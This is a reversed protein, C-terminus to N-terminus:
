AIGGDLVVVRVPKGLLEGGLIAHTRKTTVLVIGEVEAFGLYRLVQRTVSAVSGATKVEVGVAGVLFDLISEHDLRYERKPRLISLEHQVLDQLESERSFVFASSNLRDVIEALKADLEAM